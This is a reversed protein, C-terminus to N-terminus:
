NKQYTYSGDMGGAYFGSETVDSHQSTTMVGCTDCKGAFLAPWGNMPSQYVYTPTSSGSWSISIGGGSASHPDWVQSCNFGNYTWSQSNSSIDYNADTRTWWVDTEWNFYAYVWHRATVTVTLLRGSVPDIATSTSRSLVLWNADRHTGVPLELPPPLPGEERQADSNAGCMAAAESAPGFALGAVLVAFAATFAILGRHSRKVETPLM